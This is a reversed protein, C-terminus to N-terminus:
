DQHDSRATAHIPFPNITPMEDNCVLGLFVQLIVLSTRHRSTHQRFRLRVIIAVYYSAHGSFARVRSRACRRVVNAAVKASVIESMSRSLM